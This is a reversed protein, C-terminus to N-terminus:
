LIGYREYAESVSMGEGLKARVINEGSVKEEALRVVEDASEQPIVVVGDYNGVILDGDRVSVDGSVIAGGHEVVEIRGLADASHIGACFTPFGLEIVGDCDRTYGDIVIGRAGQKQSALALLEGWICTDMRSVVMVHGPGMSEIAEIQARYNDRPDDPPGDVPEARVTRALGVVKAHPFLPRIRPAMVQHRHGLQDLIDSLVAPYLAACREILASNM